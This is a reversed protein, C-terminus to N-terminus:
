NFTIVLTPPNSTERSGFEVRGNAGEDTKKVVWGFNDAGNIFEQIDGTIDFEVVGSQNNIITTTAAPSTVFPWSSSNTMNWTSSCDDTQNATNNDIGCNWTAGAGTGRFTPQNGVLYGNGEIWPNTLRHIDVTRGNTGWNNGNDTITFQLKATYNESEGIAQDIEEQSFQVLGRNKGSSQLRMM